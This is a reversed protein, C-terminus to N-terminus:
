VAINIRTGITQGQTNIQARPAEDIVAAAPTALTPPTATASKLPPTAAQGAIAKDLTPAPTTAVSQQAAKGQTSSLDRQDRELQAQSQDLRSRDEQVQSQDRAVQREAIAIQIKLGSISSVSTVV